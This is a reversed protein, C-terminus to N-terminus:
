KNFIDLDDFFRCEYLLNHLRLIIQMSRLVPQPVYKMVFPHTPNNHSLTAILVHDPGGVEWAAAGALTGLAPGLWDGLGQQPLPGWGPRWDQAEWACWWPARM